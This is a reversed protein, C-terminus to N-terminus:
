QGDGTLFWKLLVWLLLHLESEAGLTRYNDDSPRANTKVESGGGEGGRTEPDAIM